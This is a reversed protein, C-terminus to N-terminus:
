RQDILEATVATADATLSMAAQALAGGAAPFAAVMADMDAWHWADTYSGDENRLLRTDILGSHVSRISAIVAARREVLEALDAPDVRYTHVRVVNVM